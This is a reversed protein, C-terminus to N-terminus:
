IVLLVLFLVVAIIPILNRMKINIKAAELVRENDFLRMQMVMSVLNNVFLVYAVIMIKDMLTLYGIPPLQNAASLHAAVAALLTSAGLGIRATSNSPSMWFSLMAIATIVFVPFLTKLFSSLPFREIELTFVYRSFETGDSYKHTSTDSSTSKLLWGPVNVLSDAGSEKIDPIFELTNIEEHGELEVTLLIKEFPYNRFDMNKQFEGKIRVEYYNEELTIIDIKANGNMFEFKPPNDIFNVDDSKIWLYFDLDYSGNHLNIKSVNLLYTGIEYIKKEDPLIDQAVIDPIFSM